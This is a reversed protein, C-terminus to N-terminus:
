FLKYCPYALMTRNLLKSDMNLRHVLIANFYGVPHYKYLRDKQVGSRLKNEVSALFFVLCEKRQTKQLIDNRGEGWAGKEYSNM